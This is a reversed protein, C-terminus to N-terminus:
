YLVGVVVGKIQEFRVKYDDAEKTNDGKTIAYWGSSDESISIVRHIIVKSDHSYSIIDGVSIESSTGPLVELSISNSNLVPEMSHTDLIRAWMLNEKEIIARDKFVHLDGVEIHDSPSDVASSDLSFAYRVDGGFLIAAVVFGLIFTSVALYATRNLFVM